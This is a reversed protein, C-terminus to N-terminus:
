PENVGSGHGRGDMGILGPKRKGVMALKKTLRGMTSYSSPNVHLDVIVDVIVDVVVAVEGQQYKTRSVQM